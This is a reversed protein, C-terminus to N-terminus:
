AKGKLKKCFDEIKRIHEDVEVQRDQIEVTAIPTKGIIKGMFYFANEASAGFTSFFAVKKFKGKNLHLYAYVPPVIGDWIPPGVIVLDYDRPDHKTLGIQTPTRLEEDFASEFWSVLHNRDKTDVLEEIDANLLKAIREGITRAHGHRSYFVVLTKM